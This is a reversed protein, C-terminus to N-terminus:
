VIDLNASSLSPTSFRFVIFYRKHEKPRKGDNFHLIRLDPPSSTDGSAYTVAEEM